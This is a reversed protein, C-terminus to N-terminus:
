GLPDAEADARPYALEEDTHLLRIRVTAGNDAIIEYMPGCGAITRWAAAGVTTIPTTIASREEEVADM